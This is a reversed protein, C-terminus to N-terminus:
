HLQGFPMLNKLKRILADLGKQSLILKLFIKEHVKCAETPFSVFFSDGQPFSNAEMYNGVIKFTMQRM